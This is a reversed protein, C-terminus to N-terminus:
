NVKCHTTQAALRYRDTVGLLSESHGLFLHDGERQLGAMRGVIDRQTNRDFYIIVNRCFIVDFPGQMPWPSVLNLPNFRILERVPGRVTYQASGRVRSFWRLTRASGIKELREAGYVGRRAHELVNSDVDSALVRVDWGTLEGMAELVVMAISYPEEGTSCGASWLRLRRSAANARLLRPLLQQGLFDFHHRERFFSTLNTTIANRFQQAEADDGREVRDLYDAFNDLQLLRLRRALRGYVLERKSPTLSIGIQARVLRCVRAFDADSFPYERLLASDAAGSM